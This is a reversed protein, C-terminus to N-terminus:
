RPASRGRRRSAVDQDVAAIGPFGGIIMSLMAFSPEVDGVHLDQQEALRVGVVGASHRLQLLHRAGLDPYALAIGVHDRLTAQRKASM